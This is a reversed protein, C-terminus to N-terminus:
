STVGSGHTTVRVKLRSAQVSLRSRDTHKLGRTALIRECIHSLSNVCVAHVDLITYIMCVRRSCVYKYSYMYM